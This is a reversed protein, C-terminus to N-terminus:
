YGDQAKTYEGTFWKQNIWYRNSQRHRIDKIVFGDRELCGVAESITGFSPKIVKPKLTVKDVYEKSCADRMQDYTIYIPEDPTNTYWLSLMAFYISKAVPSLRLYDDHQFLSYPIRLYKKVILVGMKDRRNSHGPPKKRVDIGRSLPAIQILPKDLLWEDLVGLVLFDLTHHVSRFPWESINM